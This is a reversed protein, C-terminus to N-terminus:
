PAGGQWGQLLHADLIEVIEAPDEPGLGYIQRQPVAAPGPAMGPRGGDQHLAAYVVNTGHEVFDPGAEYSDSDRLRGSLILTQGGERLVRQSPPWPTGDPAIGQEFRLLRENVLYSGIEDFPATLDEAAEVAGALARRLALDEIDIRLSVGAM